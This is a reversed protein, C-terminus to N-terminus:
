ESNFYSDAESDDVAMVAAATDTGSTKAGKRAAKKAAAASFDEQRRGQDDDVEFEGDSAVEIRRPQENKPELGALAVNEDNEIEEANQVEGDAGVRIPHERAYVLEQEALQEEQALKAILKPDMKSVGALRMAEDIFPGLHNLDAYTNAHLWAPHPQNKSEGPSAWAGGQSPAEPNVRFEDPQDVFDDKRFFSYGAHPNVWDLHTGRRLHVLTAVEGGQILEGDSRRSGYPLLQLTVAGPKLFVANAWHSGASAIFVDTTQLLKAAAAEHESMSTVKLTVNYRWYIYRLVQRDNLVANTLDNWKSVYTVVPRPSELNHNRPPGLPSPNVLEAADEAVVAADEKPTITERSAGFVWPYQQLHEWEAILADDASDGEEQLMEVFKYPKYALDIYRGNGLVIGQRLREAANLPYGLFEIANNIELRHLASKMFRSFAELAGAMRDQQQSPAGIEGGGPLEEQLDITRSFGVILNSLCTGEEGDWSRLGGGGLASYLAGWDNDLVADSSYLLTPHQSRLYDAHPWVGLVCWTDETGCYAESTRTPAGTRQTCEAAPKVTGTGLDAIKPCENPSIGSLLEQVKGDPGVEMLPLYGLERLTQFTPLLGKSWTSWKDQPKPVHLLLSPGNIWKTCANKHRTQALYRVHLLRKKHPDDSLLLATPPQPSSSNGTAVDYRWKNAPAQVDPGGFFDIDGKDGIRVNTFRYFYTTGEDSPGSTPHAFVESISSNGPFMSIGGVDNDRLLAQALSQTQSDQEEFSRGIWSQKELDVSTEAILQRKRVPGGSTYPQEVSRFDDVQRFVLLGVVALLMMQFALLAKGRRKPPRGFTATARPTSAGSGPRSGNHGFRSPVRIPKLSPVGEMDIRPAPTRRNFGSTVGKLAM